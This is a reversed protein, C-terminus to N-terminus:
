AFDRLAHSKGVRKGIPGGGINEALVGRQRRELIVAAAIEIDAADGRDRVISKRGEIRELPRQAIVAALALLAHEGVAAKERGVALRFEDRRVRGRKALGQRVCKGEPEIGAAHAVLPVGHRAGPFARPEARMQRLREDLDMRGVRLLETEDLVFEGFHRRLMRAADEADLDARALLLPESNAGM